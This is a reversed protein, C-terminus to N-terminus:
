PREWPPVSDYVRWSGTDEQYVAATGDDLVVYACGVPLFNAQGNEEPEAGDIFSTTYRIDSEEPDLQIYDQTAWYVTGDVMFAFCWDGLTGGAEGANEGPSAPAAINPADASDLDGGPREEAGGASSDGGAPSLAQDTSAPEQVSSDSVSPAGAAGGSFEPACGGGGMGGIHTAGYGLALIVAFGAALGMWRSYDRRPRSYGEAEQILSDDLLGIADLLHESTM